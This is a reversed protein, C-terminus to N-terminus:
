PTASRSTAPSSPATWPRPSPPTALSSKLSSSPPKSESRGPGRGPPAQFQRRTIQSVAKDRTNVAALYKQQADDLSQQSVVGEKSMQLNREYTHKYMPLDPAEANVKDYQIAAAAAHANSEAAALQAKQAAVQDLIEQQDLQALVQGQKVHDNIDVDLRTVIGSAKSKVEVKTIPQVKGTAVVSRAIDALEAKGLQSSEFKTTNGRAAVAIGLAVAIVLVTLGTWLWIRRKNKRQTAM